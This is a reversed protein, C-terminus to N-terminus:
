PTKCICTENRQKIEDSGANVYYFAVVVNSYKSDVLESVWNGNTVIYSNDSTSSGGVYNILKTRSNGVIDNLAKERNAVAEDLSNGKGIVVGICVYDKYTEQESSDLKNWYSGAEEHDYRINAIRLLNNGSSKSFVEQFTISKKKNNSNRYSYTKNRDKPNVESTFKNPNSVDSLFAVGNKTQIYEKANSINDSTNLSESVDIHNVYVTTDVKDYYMDIVVVRNGSAGSIVVSTSDPYMNKEVGSNQSLAFTSESITRIDVNGLTTDRNAAAEKYSSGTGIVSGICNYNNLINKEIDSANIGVPISSFKVVGNESYSYKINGIRLDQKANVQYIESYLYGDSSYTGRNIPNLNGSSTLLRLNSNGSWVSESDHKIASVNTTIIVNNNKINRKNISNMNSVDVHRVYVETPKQEYYIDIVVVPESSAGALEVSTLDPTNNKVVSGTSSDGSSAERININNLTNDRKSVADAVTEGKGVVAGICNYNNLINNETDSASVNTPISSFKYTGNESYSYKINGIRLNEESSVNEYIESYKYGDSFFDNRRTPTLNGISTTWSSRDHKIASVNTTEIVNDNLITSSNITDLNTVDIHRVYIKREKPDSPIEFINDYYNIVSNEARALGNTATGTISISSTWAERASLKVGESNTLRRQKTGRVTTEWFKFATDMNQYYCYDMSSASTAQADNLWSTRLVSSGYVYLYQSNTDSGFKQWLKDSYDSDLYNDSVYVGNIVAFRYLNTKFVFIDSNDEPNARLGSINDKGQKAPVWYLGSYNSTEQYVDYVVSATLTSLTPYPNSSEVTGTSYYKKTKGNGAETIYESNVYKHFYEYYREFSFPWDHKKDTEVYVNEDPMQGTINSMYVWNDWSLPYKVGPKNDLANEYMLKTTEYAATQKRYVLEPFYPDDKRGLENKTKVITTIGYGYSSNVTVLMILLFINIMLIRLLEFKNKKM